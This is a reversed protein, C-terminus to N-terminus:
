DDTHHYKKAWFANGDEDLGTFIITTKWNEWDWAVMVKGTIEKEEDEDEFVFSLSNEESYSWQKITENNEIEGKKALVIDESLLLDNNYKNVNIYKWNGILAEESIAQEKEGAYREPSVLPWGDDSWLIRRVHLYPWNPDQEGRAHHILYFEGDDNLVSNHGPAIWGDEDGFRYSGILKTGVEYPFIDTDTMNNGVYDIYPGDIQESRAVRINYDASLSDYSVFLYYQDEEENFIIYPGEVANDVSENREVVLTGLGEELPKGTEADLELIYIGGFFSGYVMWPAGDRDLLVAPDIANHEDGAESKIVLGENEWPGDIQDSTLLGIWSQNSGFTSASYYMYYKDNMKILDPACLETANTWEYADDPVEDLVIGLYEWNILVSSKRMQIGPAPEGVVTADTSVTYYIDDDKFISPDHGNLTGWMSEKNILSTDYLIEQDPEQPFELSEFADDTSCGSIIILAILGSLFVKM